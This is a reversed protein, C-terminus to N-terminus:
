KTLKLEYGKQCSYQMRVEKCKPHTITFVISGNLNKRLNPMDVVPKLVHTDSINNPDIAFSVTNGSSEAKTVAFKEGDLSAITIPSTGINPDILSLTIQNPVVEVALQVYAKIELKVRLNNSDNSFVMIHQWTDGQFKPAHFQITIEGSEGPAYEKKELNPITCKCTGYLNDIKLVDKGVNTFKFKCTNDSEPSIEGFDHLLTDFKIRANCPGSPQNVEAKAPKVAKKQKDPKAFVAPCFLLQPIVAFIIFYYFRKNM